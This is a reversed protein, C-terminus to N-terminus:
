QLIIDAVTRSLIRDDSDAAYDWYMAGLCDQELIYRCKVAISRANEFGLEFGGDKNVLYPVQAEEDWKETYETLEPINRFNVYDRTLGRGYFPLGVVLKDKPVGAALHAKVAEDTCMYGSNGSPYLANHLVDKRGDRMDYSMVNIFDFCNIVSPFDVYLASCVSAMTLLADPGIAERIAKVLLTFNETDDVSSSIGAASSTPYEWDLDIGDLGYEDMKRKCDFAFSARREATSAMESFRGAGWGGISLLIKLDPNEEKLAVLTKLKDSPSGDARRFEPITIGDFTDNVKGFAYNIHTMVAPDPIVDNWGIVYAVVVKNNSSSCSVSQMMAALFAPLFILRKIFSINNQM